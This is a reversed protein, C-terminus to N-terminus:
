PLIVASSEEYYRSAAFDGSASGVLYFQGDQTLAIANAIDHPTGIDTTTLGDQDFDSDLSGDTNYEAIAFNGNAAGVALIQGNPLVAIDRAEAASHEGFTTYVKGDTGFKPDASGDPTLRAIAFASGAGTGSVGALLIDGSADTTLSYVSQSTRKFHVIRLGRNGFGCDVSGDANFREVAIGDGLQCALVLKGDGQMTLATNTGTIRPIAAANENWTPDLQGNVYRRIEAQAPLAAGNSRLPRVVGAVYFRNIGLKPDVILNWADASADHRDDILKGKHGFNRDIQGDHKLAVIAFRGDSTGAVLIHNGFVAVARAADDGGLDVNVKGDVGFTTDLLGTDDYRVIEFNHDSEGAAILKGSSQIAADNAIDNSGQEIGTKVPGPYDFDSGFQNFFRDLVTVRSADVQESPEGAYTGELPVVHAEYNVGDNLGAIIASRGNKGVTLSDAGYGHDWPAWEIRYGTAHTSNSTWDIQVTGDSLATTEVNEPSPLLLLTQSAPKSDKLGLATVRFQYQLTPNLDTITTLGFEDLTAGGEIQGDVLRSNQLTFPENLPAWEVKFQSVDTSDDFFSLEATHDSLALVSLGPTPLRTIVSTTGLSALTGGARTFPRVRFYYRVEADLNTDVYTNGTVTAVQSYDKNDESVFICFGDIPTSGARTWSVQVNAHIDVDEPDDSPESVTALAVAHVSDIEGASSFLTRYELAEIRAIGM